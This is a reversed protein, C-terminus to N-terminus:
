RIRITQDDNEPGLSVLRALFGVLLFSGVADTPKKARNYDIVNRLYMQSQSDLHAQLSAHMTRLVTSWIRQGGIWHGGLEWGKGATRRLVSGKGRWM